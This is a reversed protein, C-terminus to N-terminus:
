GKKISKELDAASPPRTLEKPLVVPKNYKKVTPPPTWAVKDQNDRGFDTRIKQGNGAKEEQRM